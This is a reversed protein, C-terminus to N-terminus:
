NFKFPWDCLPIVECALPFLPVLSIWDCLFLLYFPGNGNDLLYNITHIDKVASWVM